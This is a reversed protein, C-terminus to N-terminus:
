VIESMMEDVVEPDPVIETSLLEEEIDHSLSSLQEELSPTGLEEDCLLSITEKETMIKEQDQQMRKLREFFQYHQFQIVWYKRKLEDSLRQLQISINMIYFYMYLCRKVREENDERSCAKMQMDILSNMVDTPTNASRVVSSDVSYDM